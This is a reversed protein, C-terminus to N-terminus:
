NSAEMTFNERYGASTPRIDGRWLQVRNPLPTGRDRSQKVFGSLVEDAFQARVADPIDDKTRLKRGKRREAAMYDNLLTNLRKKLKPATDGALDAVPLPKGADDTLFYYDVAGKGPNGYMPFHSFPYQEELKLSLM